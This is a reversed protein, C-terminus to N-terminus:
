LKEEWFEELTMNNDYMYTAANVGVYRFHWPEYKIETIYEKDKPYRLIFGYKHANEALWKGGGTEGFGESLTDYGDALLDLALGVQHESAGPITISQSSLNYADLYSYGRSMYSKIRYQFLFEQYENTRYPSRVTINFGESKADQLMAVFDPIIREDCQINGGLSGLPFEYGEPIFHQKNILMIRWDDRDFDYNGDAETRIDSAIYGIESLISDADIGSIDVGEESEGGAEDGSLTMYDMDESNSYKGSEDVTIREVEDESVLAVSTDLTGFDVMVPANGSGGFIPFSFSSFAAASFVSFCMMAIKKSRGGLWLGLRVFFLSIFLAPIAFFRCLKSKRGFSVLKKRVKEEPTLEFM